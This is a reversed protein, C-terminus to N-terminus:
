TGFRVSRQYCYLYQVLSCATTSQNSETEPISLGTLETNRRIGFSDSRDLDPRASIPILPSESEKQIRLGRSASSRPSSQRTSYTPLIARICCRTHSM